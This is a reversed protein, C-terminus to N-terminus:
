PKLAGPEIMRTIAGCAKCKLEVSHVQEPPESGFGRIPAEARKTGTRVNAGGCQRCTSNLGLPEEHMENM